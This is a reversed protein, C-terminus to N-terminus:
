RRCQALTLTFPPHVLRDFTSLDLRPPVVKYLYYGEMEENVTKILSRLVSLLWRDLESRDVTAPMGHTGLGDRGSFGDINAYQVFFSWANQLPLLVTRVVDRVGSESFRVPEARVVPSTILYARLADARIPQPCECPASLKSQNSNKLRRRRTGDRERYLKSLPNTM